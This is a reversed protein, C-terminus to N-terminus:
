ESGSFIGCQRGFANGKRGPFFLPIPFLHLPYFPYPQIQVAEARPLGVVSVGYKENKM